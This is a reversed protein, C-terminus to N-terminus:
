RCSVGGESWGSGRGTRTSAGVRAFRIARDGWYLASAYSRTARGDGSGAAQIVLVRARFELIDTLIAGANQPADQFHEGLSEVIFAIQVQLFREDVRAKGWGLVSRAQTPLVFRPLPDFIM